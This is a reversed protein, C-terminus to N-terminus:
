EFCQRLYVLFRSFLLGPTSARYSLRLKRVVGFIANAYNMDKKGLCLLPPLNIQGRQKPRPSLISAGKRAELRSAHALGARQSRWLLTNARHVKPKLGTELCLLLAWWPPRKQKPRRESILRSCNEESELVSGYRPWKM